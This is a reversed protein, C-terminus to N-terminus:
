SRVLRELNRTTAALFATAPASWRRSAVRHARANQHLLVRMPPVDAAAGAGLKIAWVDRFVGVLEKLTEAGKGSMGNDKARQVLGDLANSM